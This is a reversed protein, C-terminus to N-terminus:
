INHDRLQGDFIPPVLRQDSLHNGGGLDDLMRKQPPKTIDWSLSPSNCSGPKSALRGDNIELKASGGEIMGALTQVALEGDPSFLGVIEANFATTSASEIIHPFSQLAAHSKPPSHLGGTSVSVSVQTL